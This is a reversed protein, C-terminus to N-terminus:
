KKVEIKTEIGLQNKLNKEAIEFQNEYIKEAFIQVSEIKMENGNEINISIRIDANKIGVEELIDFIKEKLEDQLHETAEDNASPASQVEPLELGNIIKMPDANSLFPSLIACMLFLSVAARVLKETSGEPSIFLIIAGVIASVTIGLAWQKIENM